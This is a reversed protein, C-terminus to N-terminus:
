LEWEMRGEKIIWEELRNFGEKMSVTPEYGFDRKAATNDYWHATMLEEVMFRTVPPDGKLSFTDFIWELIGGLKYAIKPSLQKNVKPYGAIELLRNVFEWLPWPESQSIFYVRGAIDTNELLALGCLLHADAANDIYTFDVLKEEFGLKRLRQTKGKKLIGPTLHTDEPGWILHPRLSVTRLQDSNAERVLKEAEAKTRPYAAKFNKPYDVAEDLGEQDSGDFIVSPSSTYVLNRIKSDHCAILVNRTGIVNSRFFDEAKGWLGAKAAVHFVIECGECAKKVASLDALDGRVQTVGLQDLVPYHGRSFSKITFKESLLRKVIAGGLFGGGGTVLV